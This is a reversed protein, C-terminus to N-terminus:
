IYCLTRQVDWWSFQCKEYLRSLLRLTWVIRFYPTPKGTEDTPIGTGRPPITHTGRKKKQPVALLLIFVLIL